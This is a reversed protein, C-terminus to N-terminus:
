LVLSFHCLSQSSGDLHSPLYASVFSVAFLDLVLSLFVITEVRAM